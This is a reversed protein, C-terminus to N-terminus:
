NDDSPPLSERRQSMNIQKPPKVFNKLMEILAISVAGDQLINEGNFNGSGGTMLIQPLEIKTHELAKAWAKDSELQAYIDPSIANVIERFENINMDKIQKHYTADISLEREKRNLELDDKLRQVQAKAKEQIIYAQAKNIEQQKILSQRAKETLEEQKYNEAKQQQIQRERLLAELEDPLDINTMLTQISQVGYSNLADTIYDAANRQIEGRKDFFDLADYGQASVQFHSDVLPGLVKTVLNKIAPSKVVQQSNNDLLNSDNPKLSDIPQAGIKLIMKPADNEAICITQTLELQFVFGDKSRLQLPELIKDYNEEPKGESKSWNLIIENTPVVHVGKIRTNIPYKGPPLPKRQIGKYGEEVLRSDNKWNDDVTKGVYSIIVGVQEALISVLPVQEVRVFWPNLTWSGEQLFEQQLGKYGETEM